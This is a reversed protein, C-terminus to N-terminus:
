FNNDEAQNIFISLINTEEKLLTPRSTGGHLGYVFELNNVISNFDFDFVKLIAKIRTALKYRMDYYGCHM